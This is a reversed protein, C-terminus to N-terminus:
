VYWFDAYDIFTPIKIKYFGDIPYNEISSGSSSELVSFRFTFFEQNLKIPLSIELIDDYAFSIDNKSGSSIVARNKEFELEFEKNDEMALKIRLNNIEQRFDDSFIIMLFAKSKNFGYFIKNIMINRQHLSGLGFDDSVNIFGANLWEYFNTIKGDITPNLLIKPQHYLRYQSRSKISKNLIPPPLINMEEYCKQLNRRFLRDFIESYSSVHQDGYWWFWDSGEAILMNSYGAKGPKMKERAERLLSWAKNEEPNGIWIDFNDNIWSGPNISYIKYNDNQFSNLYNSFTTTKIKKEKSLRQYLENLFFYGNNKYYEWCNEGDLIIPIIPNQTRALSSVKKIHSIIDDVASTSNWSSYVFGIKDSLYHNRFFINTKEGGPSKYSYPIFYKNEENYKSKYLNGEDTALWSIKKEAFLNLAENSLSGESPWFGQIERGFTESLHEKAKAIQYEADEPYRFPMPPLPKGSSASGSNTDIILPLIPHYYPSASIEIRDKEFSQRYIDIISDIIDFQISIIYSKDEETYLKEKKILDILDQNTKKIHEGFWSILHLTQIDRIEQESFAKTIYASDKTKKTIKLAKHYLKNYYPISSIMQEPNGLFFNNIIFLREAQNMESPNKITLQLWKEDTNHKNESYVRIQDILSPVFNYNIYLDDYSNSLMIMEYYDKVAHLRVFPLLIERDFPDSYIPQHMHWLFAVHINEISM